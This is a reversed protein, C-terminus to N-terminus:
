KFRNSKISLWFKIRMGALKVYLHIIKEKLGVLVTHKTNQSATFPLFLGQSEHGKFFDEQISKKIIQPLKKINKEDQACVFFLTAQDAQSPSRSMEKLSLLQINM